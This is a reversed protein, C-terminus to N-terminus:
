LNAASQSEITLWDFVRESLDALMTAALWQRAATRATTASCIDQTENLQITM